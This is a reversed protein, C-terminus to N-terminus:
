YQIILTAIVFGSEIGVSTRFSGYVTM